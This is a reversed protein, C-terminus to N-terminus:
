QRKLREAEAAEKILSRREANRIAMEALLESHEERRELAQREIAQKRIRERNLEQSKRVLEIHRDVMKLSSETNAHQAEQVKRMAEELSIEASQRQKQVLKDLGDFGYGNNVSTEKVNAARTLGIAESVTIVEM